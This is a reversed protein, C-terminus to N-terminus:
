GRCSRQGVLSDKPAGSDDSFGLRLSLMPFAIVLMVVLAFGGTLWPRKQLWNGYRAFANPRHLSSIELRKAIEIRTAGLLGRAGKPTGAAFFM